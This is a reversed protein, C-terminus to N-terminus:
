CSTNRKDARYDQFRDVEAQRKDVSQFEGRIARFADQFFDQMSQRESDKEAQSCDLSELEEGTFVGKSILMRELGRLQARTAWLQSMTELLATMLADTEASAFFAPRKGRTDIQLDRGDGGAAPDQEHKNIQM